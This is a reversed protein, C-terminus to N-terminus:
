MDNSHCNPRDFPKQHYPFYNAWGTQIRSILYLRCPLHVFAQITLLTEIQLSGKNRHGTTACCLLVSKSCQYQPHSHQLLVTIRNVISATAAFTATGGARANCVGAAKEGVGSDVSNTGKQENLGGSMQRLSRM